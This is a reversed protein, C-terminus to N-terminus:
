STRGDMSSGDAKFENMADEPFVVAILTSEDHFPRLM